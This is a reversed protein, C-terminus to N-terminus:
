HHKIYERLLRNIETQHDVENQKYWNVIEPDLFITLSQKKSRTKLRDFYPNKVGQSFDYNDRM